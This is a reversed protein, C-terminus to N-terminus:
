IIHTTRVHQLIYEKIVGYQARQTHQSKGVVSVSEAALRVQLVILITCLM